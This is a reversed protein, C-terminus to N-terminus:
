KGLKLRYALHLSYLQRDKGFYNDAHFSAEIGNDFSYGGSVAAIFAASSKWLVSKTSSHDPYVVVLHDPNNLSLMVGVEGSFFVRKSVYTKMGAKVPIYKYDTREYHSSTTGSLFQSVNYQPRAKEVVYGLSLTAAIRNNLERETFLEAGYVNESVGSSIGGIAALGLYWNQTLSVTKPAPKFVSNFSIGAEWSLRRQHDITTYFNYSTQGYANTEINYKNFINKSYDSFVPGAFVSINKTVQANLLLKGQKWTEEFGNGVFQYDAIASLFLRNSLMFDHGLGLGLSYMKERSGFNRGAHFISYFKHTGSTFSLNTSIRSNGSLSVRYFGNGIINILGISAGESTDAVNVLGIQVGKLKHAENNLAAIQLGSVQGEAKNIFGALQVGRVTDLARNNVGAFQLGTMTGGVLNFVGALQLYQANGKDINFLGGIEFGNVGATYGGALNFSFKNVVQSSFLGHTSLGPTLSFQFPRKAFFDPINLSQIKQRTSILFKGFVDREVGKSKDKYDGIRTRSSVAVANLFNVAADKYNIKSATISLVGPNGARFKLKFYGHEDTLTAALFQKEYISVNALREGNQEDVVIGSISYTSNDNTIDTNILSLHPLAGSIIVYNKQEEFEYRGKFLQELVGYVPQQKAVLTVLSDKPLLKGNYSFYFKGQNSIETLADALRVRNFDVTVPKELLSQAQVNSFTCFLLFVYVKILFKM